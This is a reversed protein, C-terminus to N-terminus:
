LSHWELEREPSIDLSYGRGFGPQWEYFNKRCPFLREMILVIVGGHCIVAISEVGSNLLKDLGATVRSEFADRSEGCPCLGGNIWQQYEPKSKLDDYSKLEFKGFDIERLEDMIMGPELDYLLRLTESARILGSSIYVDATPYIITEKLAALGQRGQESLPLDTRGCYLRKESAETMGHRILILKM